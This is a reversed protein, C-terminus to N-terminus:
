ENGTRRKRLLLYGAGLILVAGVVYFITVGMGGTSPLLSGTKNAVDAQVKLRQYSNRSPLGNDDNSPTNNDIKVEIDAARNYGPLAYTEVLTYTGNTLGDIWIVGDGISVTEDGTGWQGDPGASYTSAAGATFEVYVDDATDFVGDPGPRYIHPVSYYYGVYFDDATGLEEDPGAYRNRDEISPPNSIGLCWHRYKTVTTNVQNGGTEFETADALDAVWTIARTSEDQHLYKGASNKLVFKVGSLPVNGFTTSVGEGEYKYVILRATFVACYDTISGSHGYMLTGQNENPGFAVQANKNVVCDYTITITTDTTITDLYDQDFLVFLNGDTTNYRNNSSYINSHVLEGNTDGYYDRNEGRYLNYPYLGTEADMDGAMTYLTQPNPATYVTYNDESLAQGNVKIVVSDPELTLGQNQRDSVLYNEAGKRAVVTLTYTVTDGIQVTAAHNDESYSWYDYVAGTQIDESHGDADPNTVEGDANTVETIEKKFGPVDNKDEIAADPHTSDIMVVSGVSSDVYYYGFPLDNVKYYLNYHYNGDDDNGSINEYYPRGANQSPYHDHQYKTVPAVKTGLATINAKIWAVAESSLMGDQAVAADKVTVQNGAGVSFYTDFGDVVKQADTCTYVIGGANGEADFAITADFLRYLTFDGTGNGYGVDRKITITGLTPNVALAPVALAALLALALLIMAARKMTKM